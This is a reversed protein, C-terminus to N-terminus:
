GSQALRMRTVELAAADAAPCKARLIAYALATALITADGIGGGTEGAAATADLCAPNFESMPPALHLATALEKSALFRGRHQLDLVVAADVAGTVCVPPLAVFASPSPLASAAPAFAAARLPSSASDCDSVSSDSDSDALPTAAAPRRQPLWRGAGARGAGGYGGGGANWAKPQRARSRPAWTTTRMASSRQVINGATGEDESRPSSDSACRYRAMDSLFPLLM